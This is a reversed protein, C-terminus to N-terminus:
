EVSMWQVIIDGAQTVQMEPTTYPEGDGEQPGYSGFYAHCGGQIVTENLGSPLNSYSETYKEMNLVRDETGYVSLVKLDTDSLDATSYAALLALGDFEDSHKAVYNAAMAGGLSHGGIYWEEVQPFQETLGDAANADLVALRFPMEVLVCLVGYKALEQMLPAYAAHEVKGGPYFVFGWEVQKPEFVVNGKDMTWVTVTDTSNLAAVARSDARYYDNLYICIGILIALLVAGFCLLSRRYLRKKEM